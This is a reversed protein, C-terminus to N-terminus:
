SLLDIGDCEKLKLPICLILYVPPMVAEQAFFVCLSAINRGKGKPKKSADAYIIEAESM